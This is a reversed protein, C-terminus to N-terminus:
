GLPAERQSTAVVILDAAHRAEYDMCAAVPDSDRARVKRIRLGRAGVDEPTSNPALIRWAELHQRLGQFASWDEDDDEGSVRM